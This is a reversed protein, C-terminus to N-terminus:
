RDSVCQTGAASAGDARPPHHGSAARASRKGVFKAGAASASASVRGCARAHCCDTGRTGAVSGRVSGRAPGTSAGFVAAIGTADGGARETQELRARQPMVSRRWDEGSRRELEQRERRWANLQARHEAIRGALTASQQAAEKLVTLAAEYGALRECWCEGDKGELYSLLDRTRRLRASDELLARQQAVVTRWDRAFQPATVTGAGFAARLHPPLDFAASEPAASLADWTPYALRVVPYLRQPLGASALRDNFARTRGTYGSATEHFVVLWEAAIMDVLTVAKGVLVVGSGFATELAAALAERSDVPGGPVSITQGGARVAAGQRTVSLTGRGGSPLVVDFPLAGEGFAELSYIGSGAVAANYARCAEKRTAASLFCDLLAFRARGCTQRNFQFLRTSSTTEFARPLEGLLLAYLRPLLTEYLDPLRCNADCTQGFGTVWGTIEAAIAAARERTEEGSLCALSESFAWEMQSLLAALVDQVAIDRVIVEASVTSVVGRWGWAATQEAYLADKGGPYDQALADFPVGKSRYLARTPVSESGFLSSMEGAASWLDRTRGDDHPLAVYRDDSLIHAATKAFYDTDHVGAVLVAEPCHVDLLRRWVAKMPEDWLATQGLALFPVGPYQTQLANLAAAASPHTPFLNASSPM